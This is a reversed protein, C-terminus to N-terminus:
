SGQSLVATRAQALRRSLVCVCGYSLCLFVPQSAYAFVSKQVFINFNGVHQLQEQPVKLLIIENVFSSDDCDWILCWM